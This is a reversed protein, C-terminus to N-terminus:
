SAKKKKRPVATPKPEHFDIKRGGQTQSNDALDSTVGHRSAEASRTPGTNAAWDDPPVDGYNTLGLTPDDADLVTLDDLDDVSHAAGMPNSNGTVHGNAGGDGGPVGSGSESVGDKHRVINKGQKM